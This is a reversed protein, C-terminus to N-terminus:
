PLTFAVVSNHGRIAKPMADKTLNLPRSTLSQGEATNILVYQKGNVSYTITSTM